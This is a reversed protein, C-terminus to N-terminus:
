RAHRGEKDIISLATGVDFVGYVVQDGGVLVAPLKAIGHQWALAVGTGSQQVAEIAAQGRPSQLVASIRARAKEESGPNAFRLGRLAKDAGDLYFVHDAQDAGTIAPLHHATFVLVGTHDVDARAQTVSLALTALLMLSLVRRV